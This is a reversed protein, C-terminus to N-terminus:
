SNSPTNVGAAVASKLPTKLVNRVHQYKPHEGNERVVIKAIEATKVGLGALHRIRASLSDMGAERMAEDTPIVPEAAAAPKKATSNKAM